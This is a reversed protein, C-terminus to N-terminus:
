FDATEISSTMAHAGLIAFIFFYAWKPGGLFLVQIFKNVTFRMIVFNRSTKLAYAQQIREQKRLVVSIRQWFDFFGYFVGGFM